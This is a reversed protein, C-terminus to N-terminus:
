ECLESRAIGIRCAVRELFGEEVEARYQRQADVAREEDVVALPGGINSTPDTAPTVPVGGIAAIPRDRPYTAGDAQSTQSSWIFLLLDCFEFDCESEGFAGDERQGSNGGNV